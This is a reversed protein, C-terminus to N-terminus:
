CDVFCSFLWWFLWYLLWYFVWYFIMLVILLVILIVILLVTTMFRRLYKTKRSFYFALLLFFALMWFFTFLFIGCGKLDAWYSLRFLCLGCVSSRWEVGRLLFLVWDWLFVKTELCSLYIWFTWFFNFVIVRGM